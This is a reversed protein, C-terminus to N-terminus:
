LAVVANYAFHIAFATFLAVKFGLKRTFYFSLSSALHAFLPLLLFSGLLLEGYKSLVSWLLLFKEFSFFSIPLIIATTLRPNSEIASCKLIEEFLAFFALLFLIPYFFTTAIFLLFFEIILAASVLSIGTFSVGVPNKTLKGLSQIFKEGISSYSYIIEPTLANSSLIFLFSALILIPLMSFLTDVLSVSEEFSKLFYTIPSIESLPLGTFIAPLFLYSTVFLNSALLLFTAERYSRSSLSLFTQLFFMFIIVPFVFLIANVRFIASLLLLILLSFILYPLLIEILIRQRSKPLTLLIEIRRSRVDELLSSTYAQMVFYAPIVFIFGAVIKDILSPPKFNEPTVFDSEKKTVRGIEQLINKEEKREEKKVIEEIKPPPTKIVQEVKEEEKEAVPAKREFTPTLERKVYVPYVFVPFAKVGYKEELMRTYKEDLYKVYDDLAAISKEDGTIYVDYGVIEIDPNEGEVFLPSEIKESSKYTYIAHSSQIGLHLSAYFSLVAFIIAFYIPKASGKRRLKKLEFSSLM